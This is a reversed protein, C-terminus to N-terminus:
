AVQLCGCNVNHAKLGAVPVEATGRGMELRIEASRTLVRLYENTRDWKDWFAAVSPRVIERNWHGVHALNPMLAHLQCAVAVADDVPSVGVFFSTVNENPITTSFPESSTDIPFARFPIEIWQLHRCHQILHVLGIFTLSPPVLWRGETGFSFVELLPWSQVMIKLAGDDVYSICFWDLDLHTLRNFSLLPIIVNFGFAFRSDALVDEHLEDCHFGIEIDLQELAPSFCESFSVILDPIDMPDYPLASDGYDIRLKVSPCSFSPINKLCRTLHSLSPATITVDDLRSVFTPISKPQTDDVFDYSRFHLSKLSSLSSLHALARPNLIGTTLHVLHRWGCIAECIADSAEEDGDRFPCTFTQIYPCRAGLSALLVSKAFSPVWYRYAGLTMSWITPVLLARLLPLFSDRGDEWHLRRLNPLLSPSPTSM